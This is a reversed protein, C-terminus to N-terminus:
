YFKEGQHFIGNDTAVSGFAYLTPYEKKHIESKNEVNNKTWSIKQEQDNEDKESITEASVIEEQLTLSELKNYNQTKTKKLDHDLDQFM